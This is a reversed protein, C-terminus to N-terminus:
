PGARRHLRHDLALLLANAIGALVIMLVTVAMMTATDNLGIANIVMFGLGAQSAFMEGILVGLLTLSFGLRLGTVIEPLAAPVLVRWATKAPNLRLVKATKLLVPRITRVSSMTFLIIPIIGHIAGFAVKASLGLGFILLIVPYLTVKPLSYLAVLIPEAVQGAVRGIGLWLGIVIGGAAAIVLSRLFADLTAWAHTWFMQRASLAALHRVTQWPSSIGTEGIWLFLGQWIVLLGIGLMLFDLQRTFTRSM